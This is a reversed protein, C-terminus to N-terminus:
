NFTTQFVLTLMVVYTYCASARGTTVMVVVPLGPYSVYQQNRYWDYFYKELTRM